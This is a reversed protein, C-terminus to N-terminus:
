RSRKKVGRIATGDFDIGEIADLIRQPKLGNVLLVDIGSAAIKFAERIKRNMGGTVDMLIKSFEISKYTANNIERIIEANKMDKYLGDVNVTFITKTPVLEKALITMLTDGSLISYNQRNVHVVDGFTIPIIGGKAITRLEEIKTTVPRFGITFMSPTVAYPNAGEKILSNVIIKNLAIMSEHVISIGRLDYCDPKTHMKYKVSWYHGFSGGGHVLVAPMQVSALVRSLDKIAKFNPSLPKEKFTIVSGGLKMLLLESKM